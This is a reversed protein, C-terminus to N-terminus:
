KQMDSLLSAQGGDDGVLISSNDLALADTVQIVAVVQATQM